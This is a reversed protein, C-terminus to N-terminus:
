KLLQLVKKVDDRTEKTNDKLTTIAEEVKAVRENTKAAEADRAQFQNYTWGLLSGTLGIGSLALSIITAVSPSSNKM